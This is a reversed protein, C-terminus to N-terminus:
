IVPCIFEGLYVADTLWVLMVDETTCIFNETQVQTAVHQCAHKIILHPNLDLKSDEDCISNSQLYTHLLQKIFLNKALEEHGNDRLLQLSQHIM